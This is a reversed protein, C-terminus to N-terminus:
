AIENKSMNELRIIGLRLANWWLIFHHNKTHNIANTNDCKIPVTKHNVGYDSLHMKIWIVQAVFSSVVDYEVEVLSLVLSAQINSHWFIILKRIFHFMWPFKEWGYKCGTFNSVCYGVLACNTGQPNWLGTDHKVATLHSEKSNVQFCAYM